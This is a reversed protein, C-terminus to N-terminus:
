TRRRAFRPPTNPEVTVVVRSGLSRLSRAATAAPSAGSGFGQKITHIFFDIKGLDWTM